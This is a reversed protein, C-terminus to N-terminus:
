NLCVDEVGYYDLLYKTTQKTSVLTGVPDNSHRPNMVETTQNYFDWLNVKFNEDMVSPQGETIHAVLGDYVKGIENVGLMSNTSTGLNNRAHCYMDGIITRFEKYDIDIENMAAIVKSEQEHIEEFRNMYQGLVELMKDYPVSDPGFSSMYKEGFVCQNECAWVRTGFAIQIGRESCSIAVGLSNTKDEKTILKIAGVHQLLRHNGLPTIETGYRGFLKIAREPVIIKDPKVTVGKKSSVIDLVNDYLEHAEVPFSKPLRSRYDSEYAVDKLVSYDIEARGNQIQFVKENLM